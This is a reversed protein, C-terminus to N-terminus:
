HIGGRLFIEPDKDCKWEGLEMCQMEREGERKRTGVGLEWGGKLGQGHHVLSIHDGDAKQGKDASCGGGGEKLFGEVIFTPLLTPNM